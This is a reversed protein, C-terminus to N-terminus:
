KPWFRKERGLDHSFFVQIWPYDKKMRCIRGLTDKYQFFNRQILRPVLRMNLTHRVLDRGWGADAAQYVNYGGSTINGAYITRSGTGKAFLSNVVLSARAGARFVGNPNGSNGVITTNALMFYADGNVTISNGATGATGLITVNNM